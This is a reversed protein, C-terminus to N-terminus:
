DTEIDSSRWLPRVEGNKLIRFELSPNGATHLMATYDGPLLPACGVTNFGPVSQGYRWPSRLSPHRGRDHLVRCFPNAGDGRARDITVGLVGLNRDFLGKLKWSVVYGEGSRAMEISVTPEETSFPNCAVSAVLACAVMVIRSNVITM